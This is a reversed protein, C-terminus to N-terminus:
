DKCILEEIKYKKIIIQDNELGLVLLSDDHICLSITNFYGDFSKSFTIPDIPNLDIVDVLNMSSDRIELTFHEMQFRYVTALYKGLIKNSALIEYNYFIKEFTDQFTIEDPQYYDPKPEYHRFPNLFQKQITPLIRLWHNRGNSIMYLNNHFSTFFYTGGFSCETRNEEKSYVYLKEEKTYTSNQLQFKSIWVPYINQLTDNQIDERFTATYLTQNKIMFGMHSALFVSDLVIDDGPFIWDKIKLNEDFVLFSTVPTLVYGGKQREYYKNEENMVKVTRKMKVPIEIDVACYLLPPDYYVSQINLTQRGIKKYHESLSRNLPIDLPNKRNKNMQKITNYADLSDLFFVKEVAGTKLHVSLPGPRIDPIIIVHGPKYPFIYDNSKLLMSDIKIALKEVPKIQFREHPLPYENISYFKMIKKYCLKHRFIYLNKEIWTGKLIKIFLDNNEIVVYDKLLKEAIEFRKIFYEKVYKPPLEKNYVVFVINENCKKIKLINQYEQRVAPLMTTEATGLDILM